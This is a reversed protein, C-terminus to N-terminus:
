TEVDESGDVVKGRQRLRTGIVTRKEWSLLVVDRNCAALNESVFIRVMDDLHTAGAWSM